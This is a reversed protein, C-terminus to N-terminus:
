LSIILNKYYFKWEDNLMPLFPADEPKSNLTGHEERGTSACSFICLGGSKLLRIMNLITKRYYLDHEFCESSLVIDFLFGSDYLHGPCIVDVNPGYSLDVGVYYYPYSFLYKLSGNVDLSGIDLAKVDKFYKPFNGRVKEFFLQQQRHAM